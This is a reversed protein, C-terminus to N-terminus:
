ADVAQATLHALAVDTIGATQAARTLPYIQNIVERGHDNRVVWGHKLSHIAIACRIDDRLSLATADPVEHIHRRRRDSIRAACAVRLGLELGFADDCAG